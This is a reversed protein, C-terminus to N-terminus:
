RQVHRPVSKSAMIIARMQSDPFFLPSQALLLSYLEILLKFTSFTSKEEFSFPSWGVNCNNDDLISFLPGSKAM